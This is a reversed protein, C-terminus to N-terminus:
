PTSQRSNGHFLRIVPCSSALSFAAYHFCKSHNFAYTSNPPSRPEAGIIGTLAKEEDTKM